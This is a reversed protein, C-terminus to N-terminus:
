PKENLKDCLEQACARAYAESGYDEIYFKKITINVPSGGKTKVEYCCGDRLVIFELKYGGLHIAARENVADIYFKMEAFSVVEYNFKNLIWRILRLMM